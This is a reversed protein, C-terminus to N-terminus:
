MHTDIYIYMCVSVCVLLICVCACVYVRASTRVYADFNMCIYARFVYMGAFSLACTKSLLVKPWYARVPLSHERDVYDEFICSFLLLCICALLSNLTTKAGSSINM